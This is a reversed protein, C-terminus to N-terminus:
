VRQTNNCKGIYFGNRPPREERDELSSRVNCNEGTADDVAQIKFKKFRKRNCIKDYYMGGAAATPMTNIRFRARNRRQCAGQPLSALTTGILLSVPEM